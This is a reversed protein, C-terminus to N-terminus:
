GGNLLKVTEIWQHLQAKTRLKQEVWSHRISSPMRQLISMGLESAITHWQKGRRILRNFREWEDSMRGSATLKKTNPYLTKYLQHKALTVRREGTKPDVTRQLSLYYKYLQVFLFRYEVMARFSLAELWEIKRVTSCFQQLINEQAQVSLPGGMTTDADFDPPLRLTNVEVPPEALIAKANRVMKHVLVEDQGATLERVRRFQEPCPLLSALHGTENHRRKEAETPIEHQSSRKRRGQGASGHSSSVSDGNEVLTADHSVPSACESIAVSLSFRSPSQGGVPEPRARMNPTTRRGDHKTASLMNHTSADSGYPQSGISTLSLLDSPSESTFISGSAETTPATSGLMMTESYIHSCDGMATPTPEMPLLETGHYHYMTSQEAFIDPSALRSPTRSQSSISPPATTVPSYLEPIAFTISKRAAPDKLKVIVSPRDNGREREAELYTYIPDISALITLVSAGTHGSNPADQGAQGSNGAQSSQLRSGGFELLSQFVYNFDESVNNAHPQDAM